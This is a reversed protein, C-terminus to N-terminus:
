MDSPSVPSGESEELVRGSIRFDGRDGLVEGPLARGRSRELNLARENQWVTTMEASPAEKWAKRSEHWCLKPKNKMKSCNITM